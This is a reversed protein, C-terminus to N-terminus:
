LKYCNNSFIGFKRKILYFQKKLLIYVKYFIFRENEQSVRYICTKKLLKLLKHFKFSEIKRRNNNSNIRHRAGTDM